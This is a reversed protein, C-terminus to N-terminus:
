IIFEGILIIAILLYLLSPFIRFFTQNKIRLRLFDAFNHNTRFFAHVAFLPCVTSLAYFMILGAYPLPSPNINSIALISIFYLPLSFVLEPVHAIFGFVFADSRRKIFKPQTILKTATKRSIFLKGKKRFYLFFTAISLALFIGALIWILISNNLNIVFIPLTWIIMTILFLILTVMTEAGLIFFLSLDDAKKRSYKGSVYHFFNAFVSPVLVLFSSILMSLVLIGLSIFVSM